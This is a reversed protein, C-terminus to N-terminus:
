ISPTGCRGARATDYSRLHLAIGVNELQEVLLQRAFERGDVLVKQM